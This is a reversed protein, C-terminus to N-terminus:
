SSVLKANLNIQTGSPAVSIPCTKKTPEAQENFKEEDARAESERRHQDGQAKEPYHV